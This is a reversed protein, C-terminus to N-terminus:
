KRLRNDIAQPGKNEVERESSNQIREDHNLYSLVVRPANWQM